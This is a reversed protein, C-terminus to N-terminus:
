GLSVGALARERRSVWGGRREAVGEHALLWRKRDLGASFGGLSGDAAVVRHCPVVLPVPNAGVAQGVARPAGTGVERGLEGYTVVRGAPVARLAEYLRRRFPTVASLDVEIGDLAALDGGFYADVRKAVEEDAAADRRPTAGLDLEVLRGDHVVVRLEGVPSPQTWERITTM